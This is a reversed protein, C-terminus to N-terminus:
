YCVRTLTVCGNENVKAFDLQKEDIRYVIKQDQNRDKIDPDYARVEVICGVPIEEERIFIRNNELPMFVPREDNVNSIHIHVECEDSFVGDSARITLNYSEIKEYDLKNKVRIRGTTNEIFFADNENGSIISYEIVSATDKDVAKVEIVDKGEDVNEPIPDPVYIANVFRPPNDNKDEIKVRFTQSNSNPEGTKLVSSPAGDRATVKIQYIDLEERDFSKKTTVRGSSEDVAFADMHTDLTYTVLNNPSTIDKDVARIVMVEAGPPENELVSGSVLEIFSPFEDNVDEINITLTAIAKLGDTNTVM